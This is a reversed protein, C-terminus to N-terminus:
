IRQITTPQRALSFYFCFPLGLPAHPFPIHVSPRSKYRRKGRGELLVNMLHSEWLTGGCDTDKEPTCKKRDKAFPVAAGPDHWARKWWLECKALLVTKRRPRPHHHHHPNEKAKIQLDGVFKKTFLQSLPQPQKESQWEWCRSASIHIKSCPGLIWLMHHRLHIVSLKSILSVSLYIFALWISSRSPFNALIM